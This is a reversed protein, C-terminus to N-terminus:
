PTRKPVLELKPENKSSEFQTKLLHTDRLECALKSENACGPLLLLAVVISNITGIKYSEKLRCCHLHNNWLSGDNLHYTNVTSVRYTSSAMSMIIIHKLLVISFMASFNHSLMYYSYWPNILNNNFLFIMYM